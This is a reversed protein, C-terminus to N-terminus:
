VGQEQCAELFLGGLETLVATSETDIEVELDFTDHSRYEDRPVEVRQTRANAEYVVKALGLRIINSLEFEKVEGTLTPQDASIKWKLYHERSALANLEQQTKGMELRLQMAEQSFRNRNESLISELQSKQVAVRSRLEDETKGRSEVFELLDSNLSALRMKREQASAELLQFEDKSLQSLIYPFVHNQINKRSDVMNALLAAWKDQLQDDDELSANELYPCLLKPSIAKVTVSHKECLAKAKNLIKIQNGFRWLSIQDRVLLGLEEISPSILKGVFDKAADLGKELVTSSIDLKKSEPKESM